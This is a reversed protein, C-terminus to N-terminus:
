MVWTVKQRMPQRDAASDISSTRTPLTVDEGARRHITLLFTIQPLPVPRISARDSPPIRRPRSRPQLPSPRSRHSGLHAPTMMPNASPPLPRNDGLRLRNAMGSMPPRSSVAALCKAHKLGVSTFQRGEERVHSHTAKYANNRSPRGVSIDCIFQNLSCLVGPHRVGM